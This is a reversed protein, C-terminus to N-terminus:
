QTRVKLRAVERGFDDHEIVYLDQLAKAFGAFIRQTMDSFNPDTSHQIAFKVQSDYKWRPMELELNFPNTAKM